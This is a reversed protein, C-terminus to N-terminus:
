FVYLGPAATIGYFHRSLKLGRRLEWYPLQVEKALVAQRDSHAYLLPCLGVLWLSQSCLSCMQLQVGEVKQPLGSILGLKNCKLYSCPMM